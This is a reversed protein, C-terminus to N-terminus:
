IMSKHSRGPLSQYYSLSEIILELKCTQNIEFAGIRPLATFMIKQDENKKDQKMLHILYDFAKEPFEYKGFITSIVKTISEQEAKSLGNKKSSIWAECIMGIAVAEGHLLPHDTQLSYSEIAHGITHGFNLAKRINKEKPDKLVIKRKVQLSQEIIVPIEKAKELGKKLIEWQNKDAILAHKLMEAFGSRTEVAPLTRLFDPYIFVAQPDSFCGITNKYGKYDVGLKSGISADVQALLTTPIHIFDIGRKYSSACFGGMDGIVGGGLNVFLAKRDAQAELRQDWISQCTALNKHIEGSKIEIIQHNPLRANRKLESYCHKLTNEDVLFFVKSYKKKHLRKELKAFIDKGIFIKYKPMSIKSM